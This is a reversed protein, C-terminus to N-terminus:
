GGRWTKVQATIFEECEKLASEADKGGRQLPAFVHLKLTLGCVVPLLNYRVMEWSGDIAIPVVLAEPMTEFLASFGGLKFHKIVGDRARTGEPFLVASRKTAAIAKAFEKIAPIAQKPNSRDILVHGARHLPFSIGPLWTGLQLKSIFKPHHRRLAWVLYPIDYMSQHNAVFLIPVDSPLPADFTIKFRTGVLRFNTLLCLNMLNFVRIHIAYGFPFALRQLLDFVCLILFFFLIYPPTLIWFIIRRYAPYATRNNSMNFSTASSGKQQPM